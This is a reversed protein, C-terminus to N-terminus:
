LGGGRKRIMWREAEESPGSIPQSADGIGLLDKNKNSERATMLSQMVSMDQGRMLAMLRGADGLANGQARTMGRSGGIRKGAYEKLGEVIGRLTEGFSGVGKAMWGSSPSSLMMNNGGGMGGGSLTPSLNKNNDGRGLIDYEDM